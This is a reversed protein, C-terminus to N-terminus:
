AISIIMDQLNTYMLILNIYKYILFLVAKEMIKSIM